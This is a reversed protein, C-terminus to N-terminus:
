NKRQEDYLYQVNIAIKSDVTEWSFLAHGDFELM